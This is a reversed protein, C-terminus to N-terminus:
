TGQQVLKLGDITAYIGDNPTGSKKLAAMAESLTMDDTILGPPPDIFVEKRRTPTVICWNSWCFVKGGTKKPKGAKAQAVITGITVSTNADAEFFAEIQKQTFASGAENEALAPAVLAKGAFLALVGLGASKFMSRRLPEVPGSGTERTDRQNEM